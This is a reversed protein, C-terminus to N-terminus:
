ARPPTDPARKELLGRIAELEARIEELERNQENEGPALFWTAVYGTFTGFLGVGVIMLASAIFRGETSLPFKDGYGVTTVTVLSWWFADEPTQINAGTRHEFQLIAISSFTVILITVLSVALFASEARRDLVFQTLIRTSRAGRLLRLLKVARAARGWRLADVMPISSALDIWGWTYLYRIRNETTALTVLFDVFFVACIATDAIRLISRTGGSLQVFTETALVLLVYICLALMFMQYPASRSDRGPRM